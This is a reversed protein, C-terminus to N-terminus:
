TSNLDFISESSVYLFCNEWSKCRQRESKSLCQRLNLLFFDFNGVFFTLLLLFLFSIYCTVSNKQICEIFCYFLLVIFYYFSFLLAFFLLSVCARIIRAWIGCRM